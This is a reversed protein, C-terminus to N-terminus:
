RLEFDIGSGGVKEIKKGRRSKGGKGGESNTITVASVRSSM